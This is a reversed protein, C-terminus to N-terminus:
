GTQSELFIIAFTVRSLPLVKTYFAADQAANLTSPIEQEMATGVVM